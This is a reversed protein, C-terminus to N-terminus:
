VAVPLSKLGRLIMNDGFAPKETALRMNPYRELL